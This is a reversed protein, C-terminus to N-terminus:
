NLKSLLSTVEEKLEKLSGNNKIIIDSDLIKKELSMQAEIKKIGYEKSIKDRDILRKLQIDKDSYVLWIEDFNIGNKKLEDLTEFLLPIDLFIYEERSNKEIEEKITSIIIPHLINNLRERDKDSNFIIGALKKRDIAGNSLLIDRGFYEVIKNYGKMNPEVIDKAIKDADILVYKEKILKSVTSKGTAIGGTLGIIKCQTM